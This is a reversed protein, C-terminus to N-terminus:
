DVSTFYEVVKQPHKTKGITITRKIKQAKASEGEHYRTEVIYRGPRLAVFMWPGDMIHELVAKKSRADVISVQVDSLYAGSGKTATVLWFSYRDKQAQLDSQESEGVGGSVFEVGQDTTLVEGAVAGHSVSAALAGIALTRFIAQLLHM